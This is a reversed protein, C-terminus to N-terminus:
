EDPYHPGEIRMFTLGAWQGSYHVTMLCRGDAIVGPYNTSLHLYYTATYQGDRDDNELTAPVDLLEEVQTQSMKGQELRGIAREAETPSSATVAVDSVKSSCGGALVLGLAIIVKFVIVDNRKM